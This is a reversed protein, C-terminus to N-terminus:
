GADALLAAVEAPTRHELLLYPSPVHWIEDAGTRLTGDSAFAMWEVVM